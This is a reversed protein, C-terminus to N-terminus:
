NGFVNKLCLCMANFATLQQNVGSTSGVKRRWMYEILSDNVYRNGDQGLKAHRWLGEITNTHAGTVPNIFGRSHNVVMHHYGLSSLSGYGRWGDTIIVSGTHVFKQILPILVSASRANGPCPIFATKSTGREVMGLVWTGDRRRGRHYKRRGFMSEDIEVVVGRGGLKPPDLLLLDEIYDLMKARLKTVTRESLGTKEAIMVGSNRRGSWAGLFKILDPFTLKSESLVSNTRISRSIGCPSCVWAFGDAYKTSETWSMHSNCSACLLSQPIIGRGKCFLICDEASGAVLPSIFDDFSRSVMTTFHSHLISIAGKYIM